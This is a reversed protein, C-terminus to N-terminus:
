FPLEEVASPLGFYWKLFELMWFSFKGKQTIVMERIKSIPVLEASSVEEGDVKFTGSYSSTFLVAITNDNKGYNMRLKLLPQLKARSIGLEEKMERKATEEYTDGAAVHGSVSCDYTNPYKDKKPSRIPLLLRGDKDFILVHVGRHWRESSHVETRTAAGILNDNEDVVSLLEDCNDKRHQIKGGLNAETMGSVGNDVKANSM